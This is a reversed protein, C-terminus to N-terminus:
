HGFSKNKGALKDLAAHAAKRDRICMKALEISAKSYMYNNLYNIASQALYLVALVYLYDKGLPQRALIATTLFEQDEM